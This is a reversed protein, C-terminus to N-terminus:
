GVKMEPPFRETIPRREGRQDYQPVPDPDYHQPCIPNRRAIRWVGAGPEIKFECTCDAM